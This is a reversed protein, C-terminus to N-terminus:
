GRAAPRTHQRELASSPIRHLALRREVPDAHDIGRRRPGLQRSPHERLEAGLDDLDLRGRAGRRAAQRGELAAALAIGVPREVPGGDREALAADHEIREPLAVPLPEPREQAAGVHEDLREVRAREVREAEAAVGQGLEVRLEDVDRHRGEADVSRRADRRGLEHDLRRAPQETQLAVAVTRRNRDPQRLRREVRAYLGRGVRANREELPQAASAALM